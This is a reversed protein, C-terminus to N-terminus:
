GKLTVWAGTIPHRVRKDRSIRLPSVRSALEIVRKDQELKGEEAQARAPSVYGYLNTKM